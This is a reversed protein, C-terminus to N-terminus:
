RAEGLTSIHAIVNKMAQEDQLLMSMPRMTAGSADLPSTGRIGAKFKKLQTLLYWDAQGRLPPARLAEQGGGTPGHCALCVAWSTAGAREDGEHLTTPPRQPILRSVYAAVATVESPNRLQRSMARMRLGETDDPHAGRAGTRFKTLQAELYWAPLGAISPAGLRLNGGGDAGHCPLCAAFLEGGREATGPPSEPSACGSAAWLVASITFDIARM